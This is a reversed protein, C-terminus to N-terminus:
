MLETGMTICKFSMGNREQSLSSRLRKFFSRKKLMVRRLLWTNLIISISEKANFLLIRTQLLIQIIFNSAKLKNESQKIVMSPHHNMKRNSHPIKRYSFKNNSVKSLKSSQWHKRGVTLDLGHLICIKRKIIVLNM